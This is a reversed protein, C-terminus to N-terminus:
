GSAGTPLRWDQHEGCVREQEATLFPIIAAKEAKIHFVRLQKGREASNSHTNQLPQLQLLIPHIQAACGLRPKGEKQAHLKYHQQFAQSCETNFHRPEKLSYKFQLRFTAEKEGESLLLEFLLIQKEHLFCFKPSHRLASALAKKCLCGDSATSVGKWNQSTWTLNFHRHQIGSTSLPAYYHIDM